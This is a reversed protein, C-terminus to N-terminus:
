PSTPLRDSLLWQDRQEDFQLEILAGDDLRVRFAPGDPTRWANVVSAIAARFGRWTISRPEQAYTYGSYCEIQVPEM